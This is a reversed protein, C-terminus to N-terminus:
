PTVEKKLRRLALAVENSARAYPSDAALMSEAEALKGSNIATAVRGAQTHFAAHSSVCSAYSELKSLESRASGHLWAGLECGHDRSVEAANLQQKQGIATRLKVKWEAHKAIAKDLDM